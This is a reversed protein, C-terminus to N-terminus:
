WYRIVVIDREALWRTRREDAKKRREAHQGGDLEVALRLSSCYFDLTFPGVPHQRRFHFGMLQDRRLARWLRTEADTMSSRLRRARATMTRTHSFRSGRGGAERDVEGECPSTPSKNRPPTM